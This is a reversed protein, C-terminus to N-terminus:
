SQFGIKQQVDPDLSGLVKKEGETLALGAKVKLYAVLQFRLASRPLVQQGAVIIGQWQSMDRRWNGNDPHTLATKVADKWDAACQRM